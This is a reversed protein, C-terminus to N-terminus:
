TPRASTTPKETVAGARASTMVSDFSCTRASPSSWEVPLFTRRRLHRRRTRDRLGEAAERRGVSRQIVNLVIPLAGPLGERRRWLAEVLTASRPASPHLRSSDIFVDFTTGMLLKVLFGRM